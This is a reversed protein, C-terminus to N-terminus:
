SFCVAPTDMIKWGSDADATQEESNVSNEFKSELMLKVM